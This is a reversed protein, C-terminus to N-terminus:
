LAPLADLLRLLAPSEPPDPLMRSKRKSRRDFHPIGGDFRTKGNRTSCGRVSRSCFISAVSAGGMQQQKVMRKSIVKNDASEVRGSAIREGNRYREGYNPIFGQNRQVYTHLEEIGKLLKRATEDKPEFAAGDLDMELGQWKKVAQFM